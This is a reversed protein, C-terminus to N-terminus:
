STEQNPWHSPIMAARTQNKKQKKEKKKTFQIWQEPSFQKSGKVVGWGRPFDRVNM